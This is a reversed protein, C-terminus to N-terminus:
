YNFIKSLVQAMPESMLENCPKYYCYPNLSNKVDDLKLVTDPDLGNIKPMNFTNNIYYPKVYYLFAPIKQGAGNIVYKSMLSYKDLLDQGSVNDLTNVVGCLEAMQKTFTSFIAYTLLLM